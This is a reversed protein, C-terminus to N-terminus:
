PARSPCDTLTARDAPRSKLFASAAWAFILAYGFLETGEEAVNKIARSMWEAGEEGCVGAYISIWTKKYGLLRSFAFVVAFGACLLGYARGVVIGALGALARRWHALAVAGAVAAVALALPLWAGHFLLRDLFNDCERVAMCAFVAAVLLYGERGDRRRWGAAAALLASAMVLALQALEVPSNESAVEMLNGARTAAVCVFAGVAAALAVVGAAELAGGLLRRALRREDNGGGM